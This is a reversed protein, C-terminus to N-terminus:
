ERTPSEALTVTGDALATILSRDADLFDLTHLEAIAVWRVDAFVRNQLTGRYAPVHFFTIEVPPRGSYRHVSRWVAAGLAADIGLEERLERRLCAADSEGRERKGGPFEWKGPHSGGPARQCALVRQGDTLIGASVHVVAAPDPDSAARPAGSPPPASAM